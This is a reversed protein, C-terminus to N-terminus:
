RVFPSSRREQAGSPRTSPALPTTSLRSTPSTRGYDDTGYGSCSRVWNALIPSSL